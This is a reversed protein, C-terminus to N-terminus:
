KRSRVFIKNMFYLAASEIIGGPLGGTQKRKKKVEDLRLIGSQRKSPRRM